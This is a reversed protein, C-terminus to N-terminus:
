WNVNTCWQNIQLYYYDLNRKNSAETVYKLISPKNHEFRRM